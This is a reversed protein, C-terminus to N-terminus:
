MLGSQRAAPDYLEERVEWAQRDPHWRWAGSELAAIWWSVRQGLSAARPKWFGEVNQWDIMRVPTPEDDAVGCDIVIPQGPGEIPFWTPRWAWDPDNLPAEREDAAVREAIGRSQQYQAVAGGLSLCNHWPGYMRERGDGRAGNHWGWWVRGELSLELGLPALARDMEEDTAGPVRWEDLPVDQARLQQEYAAMLEADLVPAVSSMM